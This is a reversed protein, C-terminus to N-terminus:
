NLGAARLQRLMREPLPRDNGAPDRVALVGMALEHAIDPCVYHGRRGLCRAAMLLERLSPRSAMYGDFGSRLAAIAAAPDRDTAIALAQLAPQAAKLERAVNCGLDPQDRVVIVALDIRQLRAAALAQAADAAGPLVAFADNGQLLRQLLRRNCSLRDVVLVRLARRAPARGPHPLHAAALPKSPAARALSPTSNITPHPTPLM